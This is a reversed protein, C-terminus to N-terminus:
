IQLAMAQEERRERGEVKRAEEARQNADFEVVRGYFEDGSLLCPLSNGMLKGKGKEKGESAKEEYHDLQGRLVGGYAKNLINAAQLRIM